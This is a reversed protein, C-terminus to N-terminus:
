KAYINKEIHHCRLLHKSIPFVTEVVNMLAIDRDVVFIHPIVDEKVFLLRSKWFSSIFKYSREGEIYAFAVYFTLDTFLVVVIALFPLYGQNM